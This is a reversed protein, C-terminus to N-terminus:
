QWGENAVAGSFRLLVDDSTEVEFTRFPQNAQGLRYLTVVDAPALAEVEEYYAPWDENGDKWRIRLTCDDSAGVGVSFSNVGVPRGQLAISGSMACRISEGDDTAATPDVRWVAGTLSDGAFTTDNGESTGVKARWGTTSASAFESWAATAADFAFSGQGPIDLVYFKHGDVELVWASPPSTRRRIREEIGHDSIRTPIAGGRYVVGDDGVWLVSNDFRRVTDRAMCGREFQRGGARQFPLLADGTTQWVETSSKGFFWLEDVLRRVAVLGDPSSEASAFDLADPQDEGPVIWYFDGNECALIAYNNITEIDAIPLADPVSIVLLTSGNWSRPVSDGLAYIRDFTAAMAASQAGLAGLLTVSNTIAYLNGASAAFLTGGFVGDKRYLGAVPGPLTAHRVLGPRKIRMFKDPSGGSEDPELYLNVLEVEPQFASQRKYSKLGLPVSPM